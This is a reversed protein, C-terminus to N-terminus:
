LGGLAGSLKQSLGEIQTKLGNITSKVQAKKTALGNAKSALKAALTDVGSRASEIGSVAADHASQLASPPQLAQLAAAEDGLQTSIAQLKTATATWSAGPTVSLGKVADPLAGATVGVNALVPKVGSLYAQTGALASSPSGQPYITSPPTSPTSTGGCGALVGTLALAALTAAVASRIRMQKTV